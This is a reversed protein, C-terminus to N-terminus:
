KASISFSMSIDPQGEDGSASATVALKENTEETIDVSIANLTECEEYDCGAEREENGLDYLFYGGETDLGTINYESFEIDGEDSKFVIDVTSGEFEDGKYIGSTTSRSGAICEFDDSLDAFTFDNTGSASFSIDFDNAASTFSTADSLKVGAWRLSETSNEKTPEVLSSISGTGTLSLNNDLVFNVSEDSTETEEDFTDTREYAYALAGANLNYSEAGYFIATDSCTIIDFVNSDSTPKVLFVMRGTEIISSQINSHEINSTHSYNAVWFGAPTDSNLQANVAPLGEKLEELTLQRDAEDASNDNTDGGGCAVLTSLASLLLTSRLYPNM